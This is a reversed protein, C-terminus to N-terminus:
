LFTNIDKFDLAKQPTYGLAMLENKMSDIETNLQQIRVEYDMEKIWAGMSQPSVKMLNAISAKTYGFERHLVFAMKKERLRHIHNM